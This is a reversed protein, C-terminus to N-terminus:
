WQESDVDWGCVMLTELYSDFFREMEDNVWLM